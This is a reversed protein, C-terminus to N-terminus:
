QEQNSVLKNEDLTVWEMTRELNGNQGLSINGTKGLYVFNENDLQHFRRGLYFADVGMAELTQLSAPRFSDSQELPTGEHILWPAALFNVSNLDRNEEAEATESYIRSTAFVPIDQAFVFDLTPAVQRALVADSSLFITDIDQRRRPTFELSKGLLSQLQSKRGESQDVHFSQELSQTLTTADELRVIDKVGHDAAIWQEAFAGAAREGLSSNEILLIASELGINSAYESAQVAESELALSYGKHQMSVSVDEPLRNLSLVAQEASASYLFSEVKSSDLPGIVLDYSTNSVLDAILEVPLQASDLIEISPTEYKQQDTEYLASLFGDLVAEGAAQLRGSLPLLLAISKPAVLESQILNTVETPPNNRAPHDINQLFWDQLARTQSEILGRNERVIKALEQWGLYEETSTGSSDFRQESKLLSLWLADQCLHRYDILQEFGQTCWYYYDSAVQYNGLEEQISGMRYNWESALDTQDTGGQIRELAQALQGNRILWQTQSLELSALDVPRLLSLDIQDLLTAATEYEGSLIADKYALLRYREAEYGLSNEALGLFDTESLIVIEPEVLEVEPAVPQSGCGVLISATLALYLSFLSTCGGHASTGQTGFHKSGRTHIRGSPKPTFEQFFQTLIM